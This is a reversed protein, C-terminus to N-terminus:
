LPHSAQRVGECFYTFFHSWFESLTQVFGLIGLAFSITSFNTFERRLERRIGLQNLKVDEEEVASLATDYSPDSKSVVMQVLSSHLLVLAAM